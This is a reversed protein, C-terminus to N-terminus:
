EGSLMISKRLDDQEKVATFDDLALASEELECGASSYNSISDARGSTTTVRRMRLCFIRISLDLQSPSYAFTSETQNEVNCAAKTLTAQEVVRHYSLGCSCVFSSHKKSSCSCGLERSCVLYSILCESSSDIQIYM